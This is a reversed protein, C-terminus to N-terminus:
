FCRVQTLNFPGIYLLDHIAQLNFSEEVKTFPCLLLLAFVTVAPFHRMSQFDLVLLQADRFGSSVRGRTCSGVFSYKYSSIYGYPIYQNM